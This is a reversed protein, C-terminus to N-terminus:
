NQLMKDHKVQCGGVWRKKNEGSQAGWRAKRRELMFPSCYPAWGSARAAHAICRARRKRGAAPAMGAHLRVVASGAVALEAFGQAEPVHDDDAQGVQGRHGHEVGEADDAPDGSAMYGAGVDQCQGADQEGRHAIAGQYFAERLRARGVGVGLARDVRVDAEQDAPRRQQVVQQQWHDVGQQGLQVKRGHERFYRLPHPHGAEDGQDAQDVHAAHVQHRM